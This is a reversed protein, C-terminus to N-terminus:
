AQLLSAVPTVSRQIGFTWGKLSKLTIRNGLYEPTIAEQHTREEAVLITFVNFFMKPNKALYAFIETVEFHTYFGLAGAVTLRAIEDNATRINPGSIDM